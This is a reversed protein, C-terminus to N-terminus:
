VGVFWRYSNLGVLSQSLLADLHGRAYAEDTGVVGVAESKDGMKYLAIVRVVIIM